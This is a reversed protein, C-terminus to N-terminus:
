LGALRKVVLNHQDGQGTQLPQIQSPPSMQCLRTPYFPCKIHNNAIAPHQINQPTHPIRINIAVKVSWRNSRFDFGHKSSCTGAGRKMQWSLLLTSGHSSKHLFVVLLKCSAIIRGKRWTTRCAFTGYEDREGRRNVGQGTSLSPKDESVHYFM